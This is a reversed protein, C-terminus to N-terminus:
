TKSAKKHPKKSSDVTELAPLSKSPELSYAIGAEKWKSEKTKRRKLEKEELKDWVEQPRKSDNRIKRLRALPVVKWRRNAGIWM